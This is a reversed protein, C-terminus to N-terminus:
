DEPQGFEDRVPCGDEDEYCREAPNYVLRHAEAAIINHHNSPPLDPEFQPLKRELDQNEM